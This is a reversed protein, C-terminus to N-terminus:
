GIRERRGFLGSPRIMLLVIMVALAGVNKMEPAIPPEDFGPPQVTSVFVVVGIIISGVMAGYTTGLGGLTVGAFVLLLLQNGMEWQTQESLGQFVAGLTVLAGAVFWVMTIVRNVDIGTSAALDRNDSVARMAKGLKTYRLVMSVLLLLGASVVIMIFDKASVGVPGIAFLNETQVAYQAYPRSRDRFFYLILYRLLIALGISVIMMAILGTGRRRLPQWLGVDLGAGCLGGIVMALPAAALLHIGVTQNLWWTIVAGLTIMESHAFNVLGTTGFILSLGIAVMGIILGFKLGEVFLRALRDGFSDTTRNRAGAASGEEGLNFLVPRQQDAGLRVALQGRLENVLEVGEPLTELNIEAVFDGPTELAIFFTGDAASTGRAVEEGVTVVSRGDPALEAAYVIVEGGEIPVKGEADEDDSQYTLTGRVGGGDPPQASAPSAGFGSTIAGVFALVALVGLTFRRVGSMGGNTM